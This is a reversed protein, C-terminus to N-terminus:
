DSIVRLFGFFPRTLMMVCSLRNHFQFDAIALQSRDNFPDDVGHVAPCATPLRRRMRGPSPRRAANELVHVVGDLRSM